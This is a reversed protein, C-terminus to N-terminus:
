HMANVVISRGKPNLNLQHLSSYAKKEALAICAEPKLLGDLLYDDKNVWYDILEYCQSICLYVNPHTKIKKVKQDFRAFKLNWNVWSKKKSERERERERERAKHHYMEHYMLRNWIDFLISVSEWSIISESKKKFRMWWYRIM